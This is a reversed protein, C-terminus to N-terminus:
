QGFCFVIKKQMEWCKDVSNQVFIQLNRRLTFYERLFWEAHLFRENIQM